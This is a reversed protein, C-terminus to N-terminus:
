NQHKRPGLGLREVRACASTVHDHRLPARDMWKRGGDDVGLKDVHGDQRGWTQRSPRTEAPILIHEDLESLERFAPSCDFLRSTKQACLLM